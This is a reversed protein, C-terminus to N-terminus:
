ARALLDSLTDNDMAERLGQYFFGVSQGTELNNFSCWTLPGFNQDMFPRVAQIATAMPITFEFTVSNGHGRLRILGEGMALRLIAERGPGNFDWTIGSLEAQIEEPIGMLRANEPKQIWSAHETIWHWDGLRIWCGEKM